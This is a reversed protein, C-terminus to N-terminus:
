VPLTKKVDAYLGYIFNPMNIDKKEFLQKLFEQM